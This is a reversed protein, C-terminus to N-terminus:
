VGLRKFIDSRADVNVGNYGGNAMRWASEARRLGSNNLDDLQATIRRNFQKNVDRNLDNDNIM